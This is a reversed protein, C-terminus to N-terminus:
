VEEEAMVSEVVAVFRQQQWSALYRPSAAVANEKMRAVQDPSSALERIASTLAQVGDPSFLLGCEEVEVVARIGPLDSALVALGAAIYDTLKVPVSVRLNLTDGRYNIVGVDYGSAAKVVERRDCPPVFSIQGECGLETVLDRLVEEEPGFGQLVLSAQGPDLAAVARVLEDLRRNPVFNGQFYLRLPTHPPAARDVREFAGSYIAHARPARPYRDILVRALAQSVTTVADGRHIVFSELRALLWRYLPHLPAGSDLVLDRVDLVLPVRRTRKLLYGAAWSLLDSAVVVDPDTGAAERALLINDKLRGALTRLAASAGRSREAGHRQPAPSETSLHKTTRVRVVTGFPHQETIPHESRTMIGVLTVDFGATSLADAQKFM